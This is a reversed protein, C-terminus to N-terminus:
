LNFMESKPMIYALVDIAQGFQIAADRSFLKKDM